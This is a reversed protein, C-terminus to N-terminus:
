GAQLFCDVEPPLVHLLMRSIPLALSLTGLGPVAPGAFHPIRVLEHQSQHTLASVGDLRQLGASRSVRLNESPHPPLLMALIQNRRLDPSLLCAVLAAGGGKM